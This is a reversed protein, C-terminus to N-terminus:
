GVSKSFYCESYLSFHPPAGGQQYTVGTAKERGTGEVRPFVFQELLDLFTEVTITGEVFCFPRVARDHLPGFWMNAKTTDRIYASLANRRNHQDGLEATTVICGYTAKM